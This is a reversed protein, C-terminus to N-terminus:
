RTWFMETGVWDGILNKGHTREGPCTASKQGGDLALTVFSEVGRYTDTDHLKSLLNVPSSTLNTVVQKFPLHLFSRVASASTQFLIATIRVRMIKNYFLAVSCPVSRHLHHWNTMCFCLYRLLYLRVSLVQLFTILNNPCILASLIVCLLKM